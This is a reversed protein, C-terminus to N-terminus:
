KEVTFSFVHFNMTNEKRHGVQSRANLFSGPDSLDVPKESEESERPKEVGTPHLYRM